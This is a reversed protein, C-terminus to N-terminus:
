PTATPCCRRNQMIAVAAKTPPGTPHHKPAGYEHRLQITLIAHHHTPSTDTKKSTAPFGACATPM